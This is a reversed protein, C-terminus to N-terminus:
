AELEAATADVRRALQTIAAMISAVKETADATSCKPTPIAQLAAAIARVKVADPAAAAKKAAKAEEAAKRRAADERERAETELKERAEREERLREAAEAREKAAKAEIAEREKRAKDEAARREAEVRKREEAAANERAEAEARLRENEAKVRAREEAESKERAIRDEEAKKAAAIRADRAATLGDLLQSWADATMEGLPYPTPDVEIKRLLESRAAALKGKREAEAREAFKEAEELRSEHAECADKILKAPGDIAKTMSLVDAKLDVRAKETAQRVKAIALRAARAQKMETVQTADTVQIALSKDIAESAQSWLPTYTEKLRALSDPSLTTADINLQPIPVISTTSM